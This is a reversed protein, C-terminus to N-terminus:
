VEIGLPGGSSNNVRIHLGDPQPRVTPTLVTTTQGDCAVRALDPIPNSGNAMAGIRALSGKGGISWLWGLPAVVGIAVAAGVVVAVLRRRTRIRGARRALDEVGPSSP